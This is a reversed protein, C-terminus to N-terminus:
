LQSPQCLTCCHVVTRDYRRRCTRSTAPRRLGREILLELGLGSSPRTSGFDEISTVPDKEPVSAFQLTEGFGITNLQDYGRRRVPVELPIVLIVLAGLKAVNLIPLPKKSLKSLDPFM